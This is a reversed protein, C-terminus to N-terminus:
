KENQGKQLKDNIANILDQYAEIEALKNKRSLDLEKLKENLNDISRQFTYRMQKYMESKTKCIFNNIM